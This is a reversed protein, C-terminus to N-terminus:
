GAGRAAAVALPVYHALRRGEVDAVNSLRLHRRLKGKGELLGLADDIAAGRAFEVNVHDKYAIHAGDGAGFLIGGYKLEETLGPVLRRMLARVAQVTDHHGDNMLRIDALLQDIASTTMALDSSSGRARVVLELYGTDPDHERSLRWAPLFAVLVEATTRVTNGYGMHGGIVEGRETAVSMHLHAGEPSLSGALSIVELPGAIATDTAQDAYRLRARTLSGIGSVVFAADQGHAALCAELARRLDAGPRVRLPLLNM